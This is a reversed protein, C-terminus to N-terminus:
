IEFIVEAFFGAGIRQGVNISQPPIRTISENVLVENTRPQLALEVVENDDEQHDNQTVKGKRRRILLLAIVAIVIVLVISM